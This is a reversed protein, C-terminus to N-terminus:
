FKFIAGLYVSHRDGMFDIGVRGSMDPYLDYQAGGGLVVRNESSSTFDSYPLTLTVSSPITYTEDKNIREYGAKAFLFYPSGGSLKMPLMAIAAIGAASIGTDSTIGSHSIHDDYRTYNVEVAYVKSIQYGLLAAAGTNDVQIGAYFPVNAAFAPTFAVLYLLGAAGIGIRKM